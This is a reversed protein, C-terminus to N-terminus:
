YQYQYQTDTNTDTDTDYLIYSVLYNILIFVIMIAM